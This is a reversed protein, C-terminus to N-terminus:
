EFPPYKSTGAISDEMNRVRRSQQFFLGLLDKCQSDSIRATVSAHRKIFIKWEWQSM